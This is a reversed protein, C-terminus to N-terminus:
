SPGAAAARLGVSTQENLPQFSAASDAESRAASGPSGTPRRAVEARDVGLLEEVELDRTRRDLQGLAERALDLPRLEHERAGRARPLPRSTTNRTPFSGFRRQFVKERRGITRAARSSPTSCTTESPARSASTGCVRGTWTVPMAPSGPSASRSPKEASASRPARGPDDAHQVVGARAGPDVGRAQPRRHRVVDGGTGLGFADSASIWRTSVSSSTSTSRLPSSSALVSYSRRSSSATAALRLDARQDLPELLLHVLGLDREAVQGGAVRDRALELPEQAVLLRGPSDQRLVRLTEAAPCLLQFDCM